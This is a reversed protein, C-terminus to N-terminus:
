VFKPQSEAPQIILKLQLTSEQLNKIESNLKESIDHCQRSSELNNEMNKDIENISEKIKNMGITQKENAHSIENFMSTSTNLSNVIENLVHACQSTVSSGREVSSTNDLILNNIKNSSEQIINNVTEISKELLKFIEKSASGSQGALNGIEEAVVSFGKGHEGARAAEVSANFSLLKTQFVIENIINTKLEIEKIIDIIQNIKINNEKIQLSIKENKSSIDEMSQTMETIVIKGKEANEISFTSVKKSEQIHKTSTEVMASIEVSASVTAQVNASQNDTTKLLNKSIDSTEESLNFIKNSLENLIDIQGSIKNSVRITIYTIIILSIIFCILALFFFLRVYQVSTKSQRTLETFISNQDKIIDDIIAHTKQFFERDNFNKVNLEFQDLTIMGRDLKRREIVQPVSSNAIWDQVQNNIKKIKEIYGQNGEFLESLESILKPLNDESNSFIEIYKQEKFILGRQGIEFNTLLQQLSKLKENKEQLKLEQPKRSLTELKNLQILSLMFVISCVFTCFLFILIIKKKFSTRTM